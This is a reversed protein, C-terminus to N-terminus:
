VFYKTEIISCNVFKINYKITVNDIKKNPQAWWLCTIGHGKRCYFNRDSDAFGFVRSTNGTALVFKTLHTLDM